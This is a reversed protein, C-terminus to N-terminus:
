SNNLMDVPFFEHYVLSISTGKNKLLKKYKIHDKKMHEQTKRFYCTVKNDNHKIPM